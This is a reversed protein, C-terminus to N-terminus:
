GIRMGKCSTRRSGYEDGVGWGVEFEGPIPPIRFFSMCEQHVLPSLKVQQLGPVIVSAGM